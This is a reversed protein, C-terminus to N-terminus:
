AVAPKIGHAMCVAYYTGSYALQTDDSTNRLRLWQHVTPITVAEPGFSGYKWEHPMVTHKGTKMCASYGQCFAVLEAYNDKNKALRVLDTASGFNTVPKAGGLMLAPFYSVVTNEDDLYQAFIAIENVTGVFLINPNNM